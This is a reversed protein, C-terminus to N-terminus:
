GNVKTTLARGFDIDVNSLLNLTRQIVNKDTCQSLSRAINNILHARGQSDLVHRYFNRPQYFDDEFPMNGPGAHANHKAVAQENNLSDPHVKRFNHNTEPNNVPILRSNPGLRRQQADIYASIRMRLIQDPSVDIGPPLNAPTFAAQEIQSAYNTPNENLILKGVKRLPYLKHSFIKTMDFANFPCLKAQEDTMVQIYLTWSPYNKAAIAESLDAESLTPHEGPMLKVKRTGGSRICQDCRFHFKVWVYENKNNIMKFTHAGYGNIFRFSDPVGRDSNIMIINPDKMNTQPNRKLARALEPFLIPNRIFFVPSSTTVLDWIGEDTYMKVAFGRAEHITDVPGSSDPGLSFRALVRTKQGVKFVKAKCVDSIDDTAEFVGFAGIGKAHVVRDPVNQRSM